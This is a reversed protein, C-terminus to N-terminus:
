CVKRWGSIPSWSMTIEDEESMTCEFGTTVAAQMAVEIDIGIYVVTGFNTTWVKYMSIESNKRM